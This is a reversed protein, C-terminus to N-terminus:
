RAPKLALHAANQLDPQRHYKAGLYHETFVDLYAGLTDGAHPEGALTMVGPTALGGTGYFERAFRRRAPAGNQALAECAGDPAGRRGRGLGGRLLHDVLLRRHDPEHRVDDGLGHRVLGGVDVILAVRGDGLITAGSIGEIRRYNNEINKVVVQQQGILEDVELALKHGDAEVVVVLPDDAESQGYRYYQNLAVIPLYEGRVRLVRGDPGVLTVM